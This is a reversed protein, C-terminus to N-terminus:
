SDFQLRDVTSKLWNVTDIERGCHTASIPQRIWISGFFRFSGSGDLGIPWLSDILCLWFCYYIELLLGTYARVLIPQYSGMSNSYLEWGFYRQEVADTASSDSGAWVCCVVRSGAPLMVQRGEKQGNRIVSYVGYKYSYITLTDATVWRIQLTTVM